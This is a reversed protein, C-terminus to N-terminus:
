SWHEKVVNWFHTIGVKSLLEKTKHAFTALRALETQIELNFLLKMAETCTRAAYKLFLPKLLIRQAQSLCHCTCVLHALSEEYEHCLRCTTVAALVKWCRNVDKIPLAMLRVMLIQKLIAKNLAADLYPQWRHDEFSSALIGINSSSSNVGESGRRKIPTPSTKKLISKLTDPQHIFDQLRTMDLNLESCATYLCDQWRNNGKLFITKLISKMSHSTAAGVGRYLRVVSAWHEYRRKTLGFELWVLASRAYTPSRFFKNSHAVIPKNWLTLVLRQFHPRASHFQQYFNPM